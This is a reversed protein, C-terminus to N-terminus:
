HAQMRARAFDVFYRVDLLRAIAGLQPGLEPPEWRALDDLTCIGAQQLMWVLGPGVGPIETLDSSEGPSAPRESAAPLSEVRHMTDVALHREGEAPQGASPPDEAVDDLGCSTPDLVPADRQVSEQRDPLSSASLTLGSNVHIELASGPADAGTALYRSVTPTGDVRVETSAFSMGDVSGREEARGRDSAESNHTALAAGKADTALCPEPDPTAPSAVVDGFRLECVPRATVGADYQVSVQAPGAFAYVDMTTAIFGVFPALTHGSEAADASSTATERADEIGSGGVDGQGFVAGGKTAAGAGCYITQARVADQDTGLVIREAPHCLIAAAAARAGASADGPMEPSRWVADAARYAQHNEGRVDALFHRVWADAVLADRDVGTRMRALRQKRIEALQVHDPGRATAIRQRFTARDIM